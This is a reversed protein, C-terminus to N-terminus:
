LGDSVQNDTPLSLDDPTHFINPTVGSPTPLPGRPISRSPAVRNPTALQGNPNVLRGNVRFPVPELDALSQPAPAIERSPAAATNERAIERYPRQTNSPRKLKIPGGTYPKKEKQPELSGCSTVLLSGLGLLITFFTISTINKM